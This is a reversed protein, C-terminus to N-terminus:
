EQINGLTYLIEYKGIAKNNLNTEITVESKLDEDKSNYAKYGPEVYDTGEYITVIEEGTLELYKNVKRNSFIMVMIILLILISISIIIIKKYKSIISLFSSLINSKNNFDNDINTNSKQNNFYM